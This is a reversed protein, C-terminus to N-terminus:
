TLGSDTSGRKTAFFHIKVADALGKPQIFRKDSYILNSWFDKQVVRCLAKKLINSKKTGFITNKLEIDLVGKM